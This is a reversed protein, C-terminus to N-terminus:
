KKGLLTFQCFTCMFTLKYKQKLRPEKEKEYPIYRYETKPYKLVPGYAHM